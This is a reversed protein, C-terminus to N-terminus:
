NAQESDDKGEPQQLGLENIDERTILREKLLKRLITEQSVGMAQGTTLASLVLNRKTIKEMAQVSLDEESVEVELEKSRTIKALYFGILAAYSILQSTTPNAMLPGVTQPSGYIKEFTGPLIRLIIPLIQDKIKNKQTTGVKELLSQGIQRSLERLDVRKGDKTKLDVFVKKKRKIDIFADPEKNM